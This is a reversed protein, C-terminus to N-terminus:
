AIREKYAATIRAVATEFHKQNLEIGTFVKGAKIAAIALGYKNAIFTLHSYFQKAFFAPAAIENSRVASLFRAKARELASTSKPTSLSQVGATFRVHLAILVPNPQCRCVCKLFAAISAFISRPLKAVLLCAFLTFSNEVLFRPEFPLVSRCPKAAAFAKLRGTSKYSFIGGTVNSANCGIAAFAPVLHPLQHNLLLVSNAKITSLMDPFRKGDMVNHGESMKATVFLSIISGVQNAKTLRAVHFSFSLNKLTFSTM